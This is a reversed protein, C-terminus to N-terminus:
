AQHFNPMRQLIRDLNTLIRKHKSYLSNHVPTVRVVTSQGSEEPNGDEEEAVNVTLDNVQDQSQPIEGNSKSKANKKKKNSKKKAIIEDTNTRIAHAEGGYRRHVLAFSGPSTVNSSDTPATASM